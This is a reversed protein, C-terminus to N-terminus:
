LSECSPEPANILDQVTQYTMWTLPSDSFAKAISKALRPTLPIKGQILACLVELNCGIHEAFDSPSLGLADLRNKLHQGPTLIKM